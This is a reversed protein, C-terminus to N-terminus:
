PESDKAPEGESVGDLEKGYVPEGGTGREEASLKATEEENTLAAVLEGSKEGSSREHELASGPGSERERAKESTGERDPENERAPVAENARAKWRESKPAWM